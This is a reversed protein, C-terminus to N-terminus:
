SCNTTFELDPNNKLSYVHEKILAAWEKGTKNDNLMSHKIPRGFILNTRIGRQKFLESPLLFLELNTKIGLKKRLSAFNYFFKSNRGDIYVPIIDREYQIAKNIFTKKWELDCIKKKGQKRSVLGAPFFLIINDSEFAQNLADINDTNKGFKNIPIFITNLGPIHLLLDNVPFIIDKRVKGVEQIFALGDMGGLPHNAVMIYRGQAPINEPNTSTVESGFEQLVGEAFDIGTKDKQNKVVQNIEKIHFFKKVWSLVFKPIWKLLKPNKGAIIKELDIFADQMLIEQAM